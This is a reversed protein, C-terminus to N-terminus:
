GYEFYRTVEGTVKHGTERAHKAAQKRATRYNEFEKGCNTCTAVVGIIWETRQLRVSTITKKM